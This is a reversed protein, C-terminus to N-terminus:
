ACRPTTNGRIHLCPPPRCCARQTHVCARACTALRLGPAARARAHVRALTCAPHASGTSLFCSDRYPYLITLYGEGEEAGHEGDEAGGVSAPMRAHCGLLLVLAGPTWAHRRRACM